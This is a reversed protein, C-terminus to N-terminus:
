RIGKGIDTLLSAIYKMEGKRAAPVLEEALLEARETGEELKRKGGPAIMVLSSRADDRNAERKVLGIKEMPLLLRTVGSATLGIKEALDVRRMGEKGAEDLHFLIIFESLGLGGLGSDFRRNLVAQIRALDIFFRMSPHLTNM